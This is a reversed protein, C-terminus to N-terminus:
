TRAALRELTAAGLEQEFLVRVEGASLTERELLAAAVAAVGPWVEPKAALNRARLTLWAVLASAEEPSGTITLALDCALARDNRWEPRRTRRLRWRAEAQDGALIRTLYDQMRARWACGAGVERQVQAVDPAPWAAAQRQADLARVTVSQFPLGLLVSAVAHGAEHYAMAGLVSATRRQETRKSPAPAPALRTPAAEPSRRAPLDLVTM